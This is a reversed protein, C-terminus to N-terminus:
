NSSLTVARIRGGTPTAEAWAVRHGSISLGIPPGSAFAILKPAGSRADLTYVAPGRSFTLTTGSISLEGTGTNSPNSLRVVRPRPSLVDISLASGTRTLAASAQPDAAIAVVTGTAQFRGVVAGGHRSVVIQAPPAHTLVAVPGSHTITATELHSDGNVNGSNDAASFVLDTSDPAWSIGQETTFDDTATLKPGPKGDLSIVKISANDSGSEGDFTSYAVWRGDPSWVPDYDAGNVLPLLGTGDVNIVALGPTAGAPIQADPVFPPGHFDSGPIPRAFVIRKGDPSWSPSSGAAVLLREGTGDANAIYISGGRSYAIETGDPSWVPEDGHAVVRLGAGISSAVVITGGDAYALKTGDPSWDPSIGAPAVLRAGSGDANIVWLGADCRRGPTETDFSAFAILRGDHSWAPDHACDHVSAGYAYVGDAGGLAWVVPLTATVTRQKTGTWRVLPGPVGDDPSSIFYASHGDSAPGVLPAVPDKNVSQGDNLDRYRRDGPAATLLEAYLANNSVSTSTWYARDGALVM